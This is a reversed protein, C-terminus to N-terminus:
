YKLLLVVTNPALAPSTLYVNTTDAKQTRWVEGEQSLITYDTPAIPNGNVDTLNHAFSQQTGTATIQCNLEAHRVSAAGFMNPNNIVTGPTLNFPIATGPAHHAITNQSYLPETTNSVIGTNAM